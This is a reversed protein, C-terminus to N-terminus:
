MLSPKPTFIYVFYTPTLLLTTVQPANYTQMQCTKNQFRNM